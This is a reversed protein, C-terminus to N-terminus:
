LAHMIVYMHAIFKHKLVLWLIAKHSVSVAQNLLVQTQIGGWGWKDYAVDFLDITDIYKVADLQLSFM